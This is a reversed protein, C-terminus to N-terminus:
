RASSWTVWQSPVQGLAQLRGRRYDWVVLYTHRPDKPPRANTDTHVLGLVPLGARWGLLTSDEGLNEGLPLFGLLTGTDATVVGVGNTVQLLRDMQPDGTTPPTALTSGWRRHLSVVVHGEVLPTLSYWGAQNNIPAEVKMGDDWRFPMTSPAKSAQDTFVPWTLSTGNPLVRTFPGHASRRVASTKLDVLYNKFPRQGLQTVLVHSNGEWAVHWNRKGVTYSTSTGTTLDVVVLANPQPIALETGDPSLSTPNLIPSGNVM